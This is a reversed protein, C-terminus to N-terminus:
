SVPAHCARSQTHARVGGVAALAMPSGSRKRSSTSRSSASSRGSFKMKRLPATPRWMACCPRRLSFFWVRACRRTSRGGCALKAAGSGVASQIMSEIRHCASENVVPGMACATPSHIASRYRDIASVLQRLVEEYISREVLLRSPLSCGQGSLASSQLSGFRPMSTLM